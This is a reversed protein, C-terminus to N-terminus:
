VSVVFILQLLVIACACVYVSLSCVNTVSVTCVYLKYVNSYTCVYMIMRVCVYMCVCVCRHVKCSGLFVLLMFSLLNYRGGSLHRM